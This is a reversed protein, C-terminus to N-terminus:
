GFGRALREVNASTVPAEVGALLVARELREIISGFERFVPAALRLGGTVTDFVAIANDVKQARAACHLAIGSHATQLEAPAIGYEHVLLAKIAQALSRRAALQSDSEGAFWPEAIQIVVGTTQYERQKRNLRRDSERLDRYLFATKGIR